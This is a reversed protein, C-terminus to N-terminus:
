NRCCRSPHGGMRGYWNRSERHLQLGKAAGVQEHGFEAQAGHGPAALIGLGLAMGLDVHCQFRAEIEHVRGFDIGHRAAGFGRAPGLFDDAVPEFLGALAVLPDQSGFDGAPRHVEDAIAAAGGALGQALGEFGAEPPELGVADIEVLDVPGATAAVIEIAGPVVRRVPLIRGIRQGIDLVHQFRQAREDLFALQAMDADGVLRGPANGLPQADGLLPAQRAQDGHLVFIVQQAALEIEVQGLQAVM